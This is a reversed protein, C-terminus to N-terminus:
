ARYIALICSTQKLDANDVSILKYSLDLLLKACDERRKSDDISLYIVPHRRRLVTTAGRLVFYEAGEVDIKIFDPTPLRGGAVEEDISVTKVIIKGAEDIRGTFANSGESFPFRGSKDYVGAEIVNVNPCQNSAINKKLFRLNFPNPEFAFVRGTPGVLVSSLLSYFGAHAGIDFVTDGRRLTKEFIEQVEIEYTGLWYGLSGSGIVWKKGRLRGQLIPLVSDKPILRLFSRLTRGVFSHTPIKSFNIM